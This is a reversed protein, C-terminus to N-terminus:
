IRIENDCIRKIQSNDHTVLIITKNKKLKKMMEEMKSTAKEDLSSTPEDFLIIDPKLVLVRAIALRQQQGLSLYKANENLRDKVENWLYVSKLADIAIQKDKIGFLKLGFEVNKEISMPLPIPSQFIYGIKKRLYVPNLDYINLEQNDLVAKISGNKFFGNNEVEHLRNIAKLITSKGKGSEGSIATIENKKFIGNFNKVIIKKNYGCSFNEIKVV